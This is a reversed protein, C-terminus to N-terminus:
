PVTRIVATAGAGARRVAGAAEPDISAFFKENQYPFFCASCLMESATGGRETVASIPGDPQPFDVNRLDILRRFSRIGPILCSPSRLRSPLLTYSLDSSITASRWLTPM